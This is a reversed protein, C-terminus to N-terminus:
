TGHVVHVVVSSSDFTSSVRCSLCYYKGGLLFVDREAKQECNCLFSNMYIFQFISWQKYFSGTNRKTIWKKRMLFRSWFALLCQKVTFDNKLRQKQNLFLIWNSTTDFGFEAEKQTAHPLGTPLIANRLPACTSSRFKPPPCSGSKSANQVPFICIKEKKWMESPLM